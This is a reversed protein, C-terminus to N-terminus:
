LDNEMGELAPALIAMLEPRAQLRQRDALVAPMIDRQMAEAAANLRQEAAADPRPVTRARRACDRMKTRVADIRPVAAKASAEDTVSALIASMEHMNSTMDAFVKEATDGGGGRSCGAVLSLVLALALLM